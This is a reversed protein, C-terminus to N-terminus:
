LFSMPPLDSHSDDRLNCNGLTIRLLLMSNSKCKKGDTPILSQKNSYFRIQLQNPQRLLMSNILHLSTIITMVTLRWMKSRNRRPLTIDFVISTAAVNSMTPSTTPLAQPQPRESLHINSPATFYSQHSNYEEILSLTLLVIDDDLLSSFIDM